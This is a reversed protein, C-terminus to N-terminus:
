IHFIQTKQPSRKWFLYQQFKLNKIFWINPCLKIMNSFNLYLPWNNNFNCTTSTWKISYRRSWNLLFCVFITTFEVSCYKSLCSEFSIDALLKFKQDVWWLIAARYFNQSISHFGDKLPWCKWVKRIDSM